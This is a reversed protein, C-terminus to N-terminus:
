LQNYGWVRVRGLPEYEVGEKHYRPKYSPDVIIYVVTSFVFFPYPILRCTFWIFSFMLIQRSKHMVEATM